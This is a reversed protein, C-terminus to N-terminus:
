IKGNHEKDFCYLQEDIQYLEIQLSKSIEYIKEVYDIYKEITYQSSYIKKGYLARYARVDIIPFIDPRIFKLIASAMPFGIGNSNTLMNLTILALNSKITIDNQVAIKKLNSITEDSVDLVRDLKWLSIRRIDDVTIDKKNKM